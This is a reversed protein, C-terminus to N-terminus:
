LTKTTQQTQRLLDQRDTTILDHEMQSACVDINLRTRGAFLLAQGRQNRVLQMTETDTLGMYTQLTRAEDEELQLLIKFQSNSLIGKGYKGGELAFYDNTDQSAGIISGGHGRIAKYQELVFDAALANGGAGILISMEDYIVTKKQIRSEKIKDSIAESVIFMFLPKLINNMESIDIVIFKNDLDVNTERGLNKLSGSVFIELMTALNETEPRSKLETYLDVATPMRKFEGNDDFLSSNDETIGMRAYTRYLAGDIQTLEQQSIDAQLLTFFVMLSQIKAALVSDERDDGRVEYDANLNKRRIDLFNICDRSSASLKIYNGGIAECAPRFEHGKLPAVIVVPVGQQRLRLAILLLLYTKGAGSMGLICMNANLYQNTDFPDIMVISNNHRNLGLLIGDPDCVEFSSFPFAAALSETLVNRRSKRELDPDLALIPLSSLFGQEQKYDCRKVVYDISTCLTQVDAVRQKLTDYDEATVEILTNMYYFDENDRNMGEKLYLGSYIASDLEEYDQRTDDVDRMRSRNIMTTQAIKKLMTGKPMKKFYFSFGVGEGAEVLGSLWAPNNKTAYGYGAIYLYAHYIGDVVIYDRSTTDVSTPALIDLATTEGTWLPEAQAQIDTQPKLRRFATRRPKDTQKQKLSTEAAAPKETREAPRREAKPKQSQLRRGAQSKPQASPPKQQEHTQSRETLQKQYRGFTASIIEDKTM